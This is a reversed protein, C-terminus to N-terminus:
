RKKYKELKISQHTTIQKTIYTNQIIMMARMISAALAELVDTFKQWVVRRLM